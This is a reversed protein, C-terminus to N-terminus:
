ISSSSFVQKSIPFDIVTGTSDCEEDL